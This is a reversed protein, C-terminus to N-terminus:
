SGIQRNDGTAAEIRGPTNKLDARDICARIPGPAGLSVELWGTM